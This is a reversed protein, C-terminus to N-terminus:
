VRVLFGEGEVGLGRVALLNEGFKYLLSVYEHLVEMRAGNFLQSEAPIGHMGQVWSANEASDLSERFRGFVLIQLGILRDGLYRRACGAGGSPKRAVRIHWGLAASCKAVRVCAHVQKDAQKCCEMLTFTRSFSAIHVLRHM